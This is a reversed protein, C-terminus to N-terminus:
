NKKGLTICSTWFFSDCLVTSLIVGFYGPGGEIGRSATDGESREDMARRLFSDLSPKLCLCLLCIGFAVSQWLAGPQRSQGELFALLRARGALTAVWLACSWGQRFLRRSDWGGLTHDCHVAQGQHRSDQKKLSFLNRSDKTKGRGMAM